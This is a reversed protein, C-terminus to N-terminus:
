LDINLLILKPYFLYLIKPENNTYLSNFNVNFLNFYNIILFGRVGYFPDLREKAETVKIAM